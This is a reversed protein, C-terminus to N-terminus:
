PSLKVKNNWTSLDESDTRHPPESSFRALSPCWTPLQCYCTCSVSSSQYRACQCIGLVRHRWPCWWYDVWFTACIYQLTGVLLLPRIWAGEPVDRARSPPSIRCGLHSWQYGTATSWSKGLCLSFRPRFQRSFPREIVWDIPIFEFWSIRKINWGIKLKIM